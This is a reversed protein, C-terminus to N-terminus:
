NIGIKQCILWKFLKKLSQKRLRTPSNGYFNAFNLLYFLFSFPSRVFKRAVTSEESASDSEIRPRRMAITALRKSKRIRLVLVTTSRNFRTPEVNIRFWIRQHITIHIELSTSKKDYGFYSPYSYVSQDVTTPNVSPRPVRRATSRIKAITSGQSWALVERRKTWCLYTSRSRWLCVGHENTTERSTFENSNCNKDRITSVVGYVHM